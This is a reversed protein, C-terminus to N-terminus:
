GLLLATAEAIAGRSDTCVALLDLAEEVHDGRYGVEGVGHADIFDRLASADDAGGMVRRMRALLGRVAWRGDAALRPLLRREKARRAVRRAEDVREREVSAVAGSAVMGLVEVHRFSRGLMARLASADYERVHFPYWPKEGPDLRLAANPTTLVVLGDPALVRRVEGLFSETDVVHEVVQCSVVLDFSGDEFPLSRGDIVRFTLGPTRVGEVAAEIARVSVDVGVALRADKALVETGYGVNCGLDLVRRGAALRAAQEYARTHMLFLVYEQVSAFRSTRVLDHKEAQLGIMEETTLM